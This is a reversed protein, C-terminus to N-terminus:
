INKSYRQGVTDEKEAGGITFDAFNLSMLLTPNRTIL